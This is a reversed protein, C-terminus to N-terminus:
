YAPAQWAGPQFVKVHQSAYHGPVHVQKWYGPSVCVKGKSGYGYHPKYVPEVWVQKTCAPVWVKQVVTEYHGPVWVKPPCPAYVPQHFQYVPACSTNSWHLAFSSKKSHKGFSIGFSDHGASASPALALAALSLALFKAPAAM